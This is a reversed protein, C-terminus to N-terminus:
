NKKQQTQILNIIASRDASTIQTGTSGSNMLHNPNKGQNPNTNNPDNSKEHRGGFTHGSEHAGTQATVKDRDTKATPSDEKKGTYKNNQNGVDQAISYVNVQTRNKQTNGIEDTLGYAVSDGYAQADDGNYNKHSTDNGNTYSWEITANEDFVVNYIVTRGESDCGSFIKSELAARQNAMEAVQADTASSGANNTVKVKNTIMVVDGEISLSAELGELERSNIVRNEAFNYPSQYAYEEALPDINMFRGIAYDYNRWKFSDWNLGLEDQREQEQFKYNYSPEVVVPPMVKLTKTGISNKSYLLVDSNYNTHKLGFPYYHNEELVKLDGYVPDVTYSLRINGLHDTYNFVYDYSTTYTIAAPRCTMCILEIVSANVYGEAHPFFQLHSDKYQFGGTMY